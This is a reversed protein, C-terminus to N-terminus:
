ATQQSALPVFTLYFGLFAAVCLSAKSQVELSLQERLELPALHDDQTTPVRKHAFRDSPATDTKSPFYCDMFLHDDSTSLITKMARNVDVYALRQSLHNVLTGSKPNKISRQFESL